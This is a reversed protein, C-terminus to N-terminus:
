QSVIKTRISQLESIMDSVSELAQDALLKRKEPSDEAALAKELRNVTKEIDIENPPLFFESRGSMVSFAEVKPDWGLGVSPVGLSFAIINAHLRHSIVGRYGAILQVLELPTKPIDARGVAGPSNNVISNMFTADEPSGNTFLRVQMGHDELREILGSWFELWANNDVKKGPFRQQFVDPSTIGIGIVRSSNNREVGFVEACVLAPDFSIEKVLREGFQNVFADRSFRDRLSIWAVGPNRLAKQFRKVGPRSWEAGFGCAYFCIPLRAESACNVAESIRLPFSLDNDMILQGGGIILADSHKLRERLIHRFKGRFSFYWLLYTIGRRWLVSTRYFFRHLQRLPDAAVEMSEKRAVFGHRGALDFLVVACDPVIRKLMYSLCEAIVGDGLNSSFIEGCIVIRPSEEM